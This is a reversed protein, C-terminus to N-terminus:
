DASRGATNLLAREVVAPTLVIEHDHGVLPVVRALFYQNGFKEFELTPQAAEGWKRHRPV